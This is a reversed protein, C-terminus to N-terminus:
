RMILKVDMALELYFRDAEMNEEEDSVILQRYYTHYLILVMFM